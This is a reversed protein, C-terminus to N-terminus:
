GFGAVHKSTLAIQFHRDSIQPIGSYGRQLDPAM